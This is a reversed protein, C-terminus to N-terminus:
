DLVNNGLKHSYLCAGAAAPDPGLDFNPDTVWRPPASTAAPESQNTEQASQSPRTASREDLM